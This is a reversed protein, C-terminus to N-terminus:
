RQVTSKEFNRQTDALRKAVSQTKYFDPNFKFAEKTKLKKMTNKNPTRYISLARNTAFATSKRYCYFNTICDHQNFQLLGESKNKNSEVEIRIDYRLASRHRQSWLGLAEAHNSIPSSLM